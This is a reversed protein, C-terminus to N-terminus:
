VLHGPPLCEGNLLFKERENEINNLSKKLSYYEKPFREVLCTQAGALDIVDIASDPLSRDTIYRDALEIAKKISESSYTVNHYEEYYNKNAELIELTEDITTPEIIIKQLKRSISTNSEVSNRYEKFNTTGIIRIDGESLVSGIMSSIDTDREKSSGKLVNHMDDIFLIYKTTNKLETFLGNVREEFMGRFHTGSIIAMVNLMIIEKNKLIDPVNGSEIM